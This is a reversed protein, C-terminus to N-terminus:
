RETDRDRDKDREQVFCTLINGIHFLKILHSINEENQCSLFFFLLNEQKKKGTGWIFLYVLLCVDFSCHMAVIHLDM